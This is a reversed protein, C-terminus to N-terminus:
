EGRAVSGAVDDHLCLGVHECRDAVREADVADVHDGGAPVLALGGALLPVVAVVDEGHRWAAADRVLAVVVGVGLEALGPDLDDRDGAALEAASAAAGAAHATGEGSVGCSPFSSGMFSRSRM